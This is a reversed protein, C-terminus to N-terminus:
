QFVEDQLNQGFEIHMELYLKGHHITMGQIIFGIKLAFKIMVTNLNQIQTIIKEYGKNKVWMLAERYCDWSMSYRAHDFTGGFDWALTLSDLERCTIFGLLFGDPTSALLAFDVKDFDADKIENFVAKHADSALTKWDDPDVRHIEIAKM